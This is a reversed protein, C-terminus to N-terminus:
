SHQSEKAKLTFYLKNLQRSVVNWDPDSFRYSKNAHLILIIPYDGCFMGSVSFKVMTNEFTLFSLVQQKVTEYLYINPMM